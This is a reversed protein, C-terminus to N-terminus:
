VTTETATTHNKAKVNMRFGSNSWGFQVSDIFYTTDFASNTNSLQVLSRATLSLDGPAGFSVQLEHATIDKLYSNALAQADATSLNRVNLVYNQTKTSTSKTREATATFNKGTKSHWGQVTVKINTGLTLSRKLMLGDINNTNTWVSVGNSPVGMQPAVASWTGASGPNTENVAQKFHLTTGTVYLDYGEKRALYCMFDWETKATSFEGNNINTHDQAYFRGVPLTTPDIDTQMGYENAFQAVIASSTMNQFCLIVKTDIFNSSLDRGSCRITRGNAAIDIDDVNGQLISTYSLTSNENGGAPIFGLQIDFLLSTQTSWWNINHTADSDLAFSVNFKDATLNNTTTVDFSIPSPLVTGNNLVIRARPYRVFNAAYPDNLYAM